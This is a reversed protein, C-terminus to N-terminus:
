DVVAIRARHVRHRSADFTRISVSSDSSGRCRMQQAITRAVLKRVIDGVVISRVGGNPKLLTTMRGLRIAAVIPDSGHQSLFM